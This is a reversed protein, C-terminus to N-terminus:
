RQAPVVGPPSKKQRIVMENRAEITRSHIVQGKEVLFTITSDLIYLAVQNLTSRDPSKILSTIKQTYLPNRTNEEIKDAVFVLKEVDSMGARATTHYRIANLIDSDLIGLEDEVLAAGVLPHLTQVSQRDSDSLALPMNRVPM